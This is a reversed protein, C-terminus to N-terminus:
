WKIDFHEGIRKTLHEECYDHYWPELLISEAQELGMLDPRIWEPNPKILANCHGSQRNSYKCTNMDVDSKLSFCLKTKIHSM